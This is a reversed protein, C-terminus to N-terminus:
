WGFVGLIEFNRFALAVSPSRILDSRRESRLAAIPNPADECVTFLNLRNINIVFGSRTIFGEGVSFLLLYAFM